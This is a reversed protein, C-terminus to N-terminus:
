LVPMAAHPPKFTQVPIGAEDLREKIGILVAVEQASLEEIFAYSEDPVREEILGADRLRDTNGGM